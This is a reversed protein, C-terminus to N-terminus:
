NFRCQIPIPFLVNYQSLLVLLVNLLHCKTKDQKLSLNIYFVYAQCAIFYCHKINVYQIAPVDASKPEDPM